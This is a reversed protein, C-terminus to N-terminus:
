MFPVTICALCAQGQHKELYSKAMSARTSSLHSVGYELLRSLMKEKREMKTVDYEIGEETVFRPPTSPAATDARQASGAATSAAVLESQLVTEASLSLEDGGGQYTAIMGCHLCSCHTKLIFTGCQPCCKISLSGFGNRASTDKFVAAFTMHESTHKLKRIIDRFVDSYGSKLLGTWGTISLSGSRTDRLIVWRNRM